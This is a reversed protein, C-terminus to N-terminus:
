PLAESKLGLSCMFTPRVFSHTSGPDILVKAMRGSVSLMGEVVDTDSEVENKDLSYVRAAVKPKVAAGLKGQTVPGKM